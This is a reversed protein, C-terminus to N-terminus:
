IHTYKGAVINKMHRISADHIKTDLAQLKSSLESMESAFQNFPKLPAAKPDLEELMKFFDNGIRDRETLTRYCPTRVDILDSFDSHGPCDVAM